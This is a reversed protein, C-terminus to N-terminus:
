KTRLLVTRAVKDHFGRQDSDWVIAPVVLALLLSRVVPRWLGVWGGALPAVYCGLLRHGISGGIIAIAVIQLAVFLALTMISQQQMAAVFQSDSAGAPVPRVVLTVILSAMWWDILLAVIRRGPRAVSGPGTRPLKLREGPYSSPPLPSNSNSSAM